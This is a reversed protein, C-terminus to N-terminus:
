TLNHNLTETSVISDTVVIEIGHAETPFPVPAGTTNTATRSKRLQGLSRRNMYFAEWMGGIPALEMLDALLDDDLKKNSEATLDAIRGVASIDVVQLGIWSDLSAVWANYENTGASDLVLEERWDGLTMGTGNGGVFSVGQDGFRLGYVSSGTGAAAGTADVIFNADVLDILGPFGDVDNGIGSVSGSGYYAQTGITLMAGRAVGSAERAKIVEPGDEAANAVAVDTKIIGSLIFTEVLKNVYTSKLAATGENALRFRVTPVASRILTKYSTGRITRMPWRNVEPVANKNEEILGVLADNGNQRAIDLLTLNAM